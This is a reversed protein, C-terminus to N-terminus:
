PLPTETNFSPVAAWMTAHLRVIIREFDGLRVRLIYINQSVPTFALSHDPSHPYFLLFRVQAAHRTDQTLRAFPKIQPNEKSGPCNHRTINMCSFCM